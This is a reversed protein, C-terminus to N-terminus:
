WWHKNHDINKLDTNLQSLLKDHLLGNSVVLNFRGPRMTVPNGKLDTVKGGAEEVLLIGAAFDWSQQSVKIFGEARGAAVFALQGACFGYDRARDAKIMFYKFVRFLVM